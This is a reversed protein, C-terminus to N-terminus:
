MKIWSKPLVDETNKTDDNLWIKPAIVIKDPDRNLWAAWWSYSSNAIINHNCMSMLTLDEHAKTDPISVFTKSCPISINQRVWNIDNSFFFFHSNPIKKSIYEIASTLYEDGYTKYKGINHPLLYDGRRIHVSVSNPKRIEAILSQFKEPLPNKPAFEERLEAAISEFYKENQWFGEIYVPSTLELVGPVFTFEQSKKELVYKKLRWPLYDQVLRTIKRTVRNGGIIKGIDKKTAVYGKINFGDLTYKHLEYTEFGTIDLFCETNNKQALQRGLAYQFMQNGLGGILKTIIMILTNYM